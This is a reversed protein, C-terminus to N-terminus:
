ETGGRREEVAAAVADGLRAAAEAALAARRDALTQWKEAPMTVLLREIETWLAAELEDGTMAGALKQRLAENRAVDSENLGDLLALRGSAKEATTLAISATRFDQVVVVEGKKTLMESGAAAQRAIKRAESHLCEMSFRMADRRHERKENAEARLENWLRHLDNYVTNKCCGFESVVIRVVERDPEGERVLEEVRDYRDQDPPRDTAAM